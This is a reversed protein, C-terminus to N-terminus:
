WVTTWLPRVIIVNEGASNSTEIIEWAELTGTSASICNEVFDSEQRSLHLDEQIQKAATEFAVSCITKKDFALISVLDFPIAYFYDRIQQTQAVVKARPSSELAHLVRAYFQLQARVYKKRSWPRVMRSIYHYYQQQVEADESLVPNVTLLQANALLKYSDM